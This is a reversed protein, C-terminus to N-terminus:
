KCGSILCEFLDISCAFRFPMVYDKSPLDGNREAITKLIIKSRLDSCLIKMLPARLLEIVRVRWFAYSVWGEMGLASQSIPPKPSIANRVYYRQYQMIAARHASIHFQSDAYSCVAGNTSQRATQKTRAM